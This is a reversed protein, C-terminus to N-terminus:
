QAPLEAKLVGAYAARATQAIAMQHQLHQIEADTISMNTIQIRATESLDALTYEIGDITIKEQLSM